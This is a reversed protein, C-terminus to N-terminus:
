AAQDFPAPVAGELDAIISLREGDMEPRPLRFVGDARSLANRFKLRIAPEAVLDLGCGVWLVTNGRAILYLDAGELIFDRLNESALHYARGSLGLWQNVRKQRTAPELGAEIWSLM